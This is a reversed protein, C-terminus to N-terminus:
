YYFFDNSNKKFSFLESKLWNKVPEWHNLYSFIQILLISMHNIELKVSQAM